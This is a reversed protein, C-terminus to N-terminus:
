AVGAPPRSRMAQSRLPAIIWDQYIINPFTAGAGNVLVQAAASSAVSAAAIVIPRTLRM